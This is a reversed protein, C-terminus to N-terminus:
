CQQTLNQPIEHSKEEFIENKSKKQYKVKQSSM